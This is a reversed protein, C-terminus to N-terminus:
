KSRKKFKKFFGNKFLKSIKIVDGPNGFDKWYDEIKKVKVKKEKALMSVADTIEMEGRSSKQIKDIKKFIDPTFKYLGTNILDGVYDKPKEIIEKLFGDETILVGYKEPHENKIGAVYCYEDDVNMKRLDKVSYLNDGYLFVFSEKEVAEKVCKVPCATGYEKDKGGLIDYQSVMRIIRDKEKVPIKYNEIFEKMLDEKYGVVLIIEKYGAEFLNDLLYSLFPRKCVNILHKPKNDTLRLMRTGQGAAAIVVKNIM